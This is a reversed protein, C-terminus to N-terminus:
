LVLSLVHPCARQVLRRIYTHMCTHMCTHIYAHMCTYVYIVHKRVYMRRSAHCLVLIVKGGSIIIAPVVSVVNPVISLHIQTHTHKYVVHMCGRRVLRCSVFLSCNKELFHFSCTARFPTKGGWRSMHCRRSASSVGLCRSHQQTCLLTPGCRRGATHIHIYLHM